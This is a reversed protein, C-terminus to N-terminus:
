SLHTTRQRFLMHLIAWAFSGNQLAEGSVLQSVLIVIVVVTLPASAFAGNCVCIAWGTGARQVRRKLSLCSQWYHSYTVAHHTLM